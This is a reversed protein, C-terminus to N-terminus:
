FLFDFTYFSKPFLCQVAQVQNHRQASSLTPVVTAPVDGGEPEQTSQLANQALLLSSIKQKLSENEQEMRRGIKAKSLMCFVLKQMLEQHTNKQNVFHLNYKYAVQKGEMFCWCTLTVTEKDFESVFINDTSFADHFLQFYQKWYDGKESFGLVKKHKEVDKFDLSRFWVRKLDTLCISWTADENRKSHCICRKSSYEVESFLDDVLKLNDFFLEM